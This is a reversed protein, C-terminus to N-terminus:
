EGLSSHCIEHCCQFSVSRLDSQVIWSQWRCTCYQLLLGPFLTDLWDFLSEMFADVTLVNGHILPDKHKLMIMKFTLNGTLLYIYHSLFFFFLTRCVKHFHFNCFYTNNFLNIFTYFKAFAHCRSEWLNSLETYQLLWLNSSGNRLQFSIRNPVTMNYNMIVMGKSYIIAFQSGYNLFGFWTEYWAWFHIEVFCYLIVNFCWKSFALNKSWVDILIRTASIEQVLCLICNFSRKGM